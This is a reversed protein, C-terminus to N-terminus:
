ISKKLRELEVQRIAETVQKSFLYAEQPTMTKLEQLSVGFGLQKNAMFLNMTNTISDATIERNTRKPKHIIKDIEKRTTKRNEEDGRGAVSRVFEFFKRPEAEYFPVSCSPLRCVRCVALTEGM